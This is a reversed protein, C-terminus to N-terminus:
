VSVCSLSAAWVDEHVILLKAGDRKYAIAKEIKTGFSGHKWEPSGLGGVVLYHMGRTINKQILGGRRTIADECIERPGFVFDGTLGLTRNAFDVLQVQDFMLQSVHASEALEDLRGGVIDQLVGTLHAREDDTIVGDQLVHQIQALLVDGPWVNSAAANQELWDQLFRIEQDNIHQDALLGQIIGLLAGCSRRLENTFAVARRQYPNVAPDCSRSAPM